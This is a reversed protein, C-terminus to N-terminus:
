NCTRFSTTLPTSAHTKSTRFSAAQASAIKHAAHIAMDPYSSDIKRRQRRTLEARVV